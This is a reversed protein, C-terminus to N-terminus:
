GTQPPPGPRPTRPSGCGAAAEMELGAADARRIPWSTCRRPAAAPGDARSGLSFRTHMSKLPLTPALPRRHLQLLKRPRSHAM